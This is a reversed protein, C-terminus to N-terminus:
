VYLGIDDGSAEDSKMIRTCKSKDPRKYGEHATREHMRCNGKDGFGKGCYKCVYPKEGTHINMHTKFKPGTAFGKHCIDCIFPKLHDETHNVKMHRDMQRNTILKGCVVCPEKNHTQLHDKLSKRNICVKGCHECPLKQVPRPPGKYHSKRKHNNMSSQNCFVKGCEDCVSKTLKFKINHKETPIPANESKLKTTNHSRRHKSKLAKTDLVEPCYGCRFGEQHGSEKM